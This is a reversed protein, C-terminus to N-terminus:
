KWTNPKATSDTSSADRFKHRESLAIDHKAKVMMLLMLTQRVSGEIICQRAQRRQPTRAEEQEHWSRDKRTARRRSDKPDIRIKQTALLVDVRHEGFRLFTGRALILSRWLTAADGRNSLTKRHPCGHVSKVGVVRTGSPFNLFRLPFKSM